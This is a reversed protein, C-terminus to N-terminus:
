QKQKIAHFAHHRMPDSASDGPARSRLEVFKLSEWVFPEEQGSM